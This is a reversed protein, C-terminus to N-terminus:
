KADEKFSESLRAISERKKAMRARQKENRANRVPDCRENHYNKLNGINSVFGCVSCAMTPANRKAESIKRRHEDSVSKGKRGAIIRQREEETRNAAAVKQAASMRARTEDSRIQGRRTERMKERVEDTHKVGKRRGTSALKYNYSKEERKLAAEDIEGVSELVANIQTMISM